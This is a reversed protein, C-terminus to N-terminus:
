AKVCPTSAACPALFGGNTFLIVATAAKGKGYAKASRIFLRQVSGDTPWQIGTTVISAPTDAIFLVEDGEALQGLTTQTM